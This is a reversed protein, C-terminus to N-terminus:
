DSMDNTSEVEDDDDVGGMDDAFTGPEEISEPDSVSGHISEMDHDGPSHVSEPQTEAPPPTREGSDSESSNEERPTLAPKVERPTPAAHAYSDRSEDDSDSGDSAYKEERPTPAHKVERPTPAYGQAGAGDSANDDQGDGEGGYYDWEDALPAVDGERDSDSPDLQEFDVDGEEDSSTHLLIEDSDDGDRVLASSKYGRAEKQKRKRAMNEAMIRQFRRKRRATEADIALSRYAEQATLLDGLGETDTESRRRKRPVTTKMGNVGAEDGNHDDDPVDELWPTTDIVTDPDNKEVAAWLEAMLIKDLETDAEDLAADMEEDEVDTESSEPGADPADDAAQPELGWFSSWPPLDDHRERPSAPDSRASPTAPTAARSPPRSPSAPTSARSGSRSAGSPAPSGPAESPAEDVADRPAPSGPVSASDDDVGNAQAADGAAVWGSVIDSLVAYPRREGRLARAEHVHEVEIEESGTLLAQQEALLITEYVLPKLYVLLEAYLQAILEFSVTDTSAATRERVLEMLEAIRSCDFIDWGQTSMHTHVGLQKIRALDDDVVDAAEVEKKAEWVGRKSLVNKLAKEKDTTLVFAEDPGGAQEIKEATWGQELLRKRRYAQRGSRRAVLNRLRKKEVANRDRKPIAQLQEIEINDQEIPDPEHQESENERAERLLALEADNLARDIDYLKGPGIEEGWMALDSRPVAPATARLVAQEVAEGLEDELAAWESDVELAGSAFVRDRWERADDNTGRRRRRTRVAYALCDLYIQVEAQTKRVEEAILDPRLRSHRALSAFFAGKERRTWTTLGPPYISVGLKGHQGTADTRLSSIHASIDAYYWDFGHPEQESRQRSRRPRSPGAEANYKAVPTGATTSM